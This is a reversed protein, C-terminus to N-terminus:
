SMPAFRWYAAVAALTIASGLVAGILVLKWAALRPSSPAAAHLEPVRKAESVPVSLAGLVEGGPLHGIRRSADAHSDLLSSSSYEFYESSSRRQTARRPGRRVTLFATAL